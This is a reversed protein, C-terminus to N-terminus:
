PQRLQTCLTMNVSPSFIVLPEIPCINLMASTPNSGKRPPFIYNMSELHHVYYILLSKLSIIYILLKHLQATLVGPNEM